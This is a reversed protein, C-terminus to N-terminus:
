SSRRVLQATTNCTCAHLQVDATHDLDAFADSDSVCVSRSGVSPPLCSSSVCVRVFVITCARHRVGVCGYTCKGVLMCPHMCMCEFFEGAKGDGSTLSAHARPQQQRQLVAEDIAAEREAFEDGKAERGRKSADGSVGRARRKRQPLAEWASTQMTHIARLV